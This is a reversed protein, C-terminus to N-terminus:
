VAQALDQKNSKTAKLKDRAIGVYAADMEIGIYSRGLRKAAIASTGTGLFPDLVLDGEDTSMLILRELLALPLQCPHADHRKKHHVRHIDSWVDSLLPGYPHPTKNGYKKVLSKCARCREHARRLKHFKYSKSKTYYLIGYHFPLLLRGIPRNNTHWVIWHRFFAMDNLFGAYHTLWLPINHIFVSGTAKCVRVLETLWLKSWLLYAPKSLKDKYLNYAKDLNFPPDAFVMDISNDPLGQLVQLCDGEIVKNIKRTISQRM